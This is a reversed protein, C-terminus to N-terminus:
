EERGEDEGNADATNLLDHIMAIRRKSSGSSPESSAALNIKEEALRDEMVGRLAAATRYKKTEM